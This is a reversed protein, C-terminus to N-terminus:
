AMQRKRFYIKVGVFNPENIHEEIMECESPRLGTEAIFAEIFKERQSIILEYKKDAIDKLSGIEENEM